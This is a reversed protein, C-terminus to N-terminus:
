EGSVVFSDLPVPCLPPRVSPAEWGFLAQCAAGCVRGQCAGMGLRTHLKAETFSSKDKIESFRVDECRCVITNDDATELIEHRLQYAELLGLSFAHCREREAYHRRAVIESGVAALGAITGQVIAADVGGIEVLEGACFVRDNSTRQSEDVKVFGGQLECGALQAVETNPILGYALGLVDCPVRRSRTGDTVEISELREDGHARTVWWGPRLKQATWYFSIAQKLKGPYKWLALTLKRLGQPPAQEFIDTIKVGHKMLHKGVALLLPGTGALVVRKGGLAVGQKVLAQLGGVGYVGPLTWGPFPLFLERAGTAIVMKQFQIRASGSLSHVLATDDSPLEYVSAPYIVSVLANCLSELWPDVSSKNLGVMQRWIQGGLTPSEDVLIVRLHKSSAAVAAALGAPGAGVVLVDCTLEGVRSERGESRSGVEGGTWVEMGEKCLMMCTREHEIGDVNARCEFCIGMGCLPQRAEGSASVRFGRKLDRVGEGEEQGGTGGRVAAGAAHWNLIAAAVSTGEKVEAEVGNILIRLLAESKLNCAAAAATRLPANGLKVIPAIAASPEPPGFPRSTIARTALGPYM